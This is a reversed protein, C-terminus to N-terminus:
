VGGESAAQVAVAVRRQPVDRLWRERLWQTTASAALPRSLHYGHAVECGVAPLEDLGAEDEVGDAVM